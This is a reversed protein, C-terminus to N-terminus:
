WVHRLAATAAHSHKGGCSKKCNRPSAQGGNECQVWLQPKSPKAPFRTPWSTRPLNACSTTFWRCCDEWQVASWGDGPPNKGRPAEGGMVLGAAPEGVRVAAGALRPCAGAGERPQRPGPPALGSEGRREARFLQGRGAAPSASSSMLSVLPRPCVF